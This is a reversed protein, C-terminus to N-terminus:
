DDQAFPRPNRRWQRVQWILLGLVIALWVLWTVLSAAASWTVCVTAGDAGCPVLPGLVGTASSATTAGLLLAGTGILWSPSLRRM